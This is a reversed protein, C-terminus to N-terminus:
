RDPAQFRKADARKTGTRKVDASQVNVRVSAFQGVSLDMVVWLTRRDCVPMVSDKDGAPDLSSLILSLCCPAGSPRAVMTDANRITRLAVAEM